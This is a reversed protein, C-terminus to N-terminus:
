PKAPSSSPEDSPQGLLKFEAERARSTTKNNADTTFETLTGHLVYYGDETKNKAKGREFKGKFEFWVGHVPKTAFLVEHGRVSASSFFQDLFSGRDSELEGQRSIYGSVGDPELNIQLFEGDRLFGYIGSIDEAASNTNPGPASVASATPAKARAQAACMGTAGLFLPLVFLTKKGLFKM